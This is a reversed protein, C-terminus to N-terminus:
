PLGPKMTDNYAVALAGLNMALQGGNLSYDSSAKPYDVCAGKIGVGSIADFVTRCRDCVLTEGELSFGISRCPPCVNARVYVTGGLEYAMYTYTKGDADIKFHINTYTTLVDIPLLVTDNQLEADVWTAKIPGSPTSVNSNRTAVTPTSVAATVTTKATASVVSQTALPQPLTSGQCAVLMGSIALIVAAFIIASVYNGSLVNRRMRMIKNKITKISPGNKM